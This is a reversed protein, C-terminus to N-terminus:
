WRFYILSLLIQSIGPQLKYNAFLSPFSLIETL